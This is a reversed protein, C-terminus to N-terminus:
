QRIRKVFERIGEKWKPTDNLMQVFSTGIIGGNAHKCVIEFSERDTIGFGIILPNKLNLNKVRDFYNIQTEDFRGKIGTTSSSSVMYIFGNSINDIMRIRDDSTQPTILFIFHIGNEEFIKQYEQIYVEL